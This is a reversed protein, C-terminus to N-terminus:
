KEEVVLEVVVKTIVLEKEGKGFDREVEILWEIRGGMMQFYLQELNRGEIRLWKARSADEFLIEIKGPSFYCELSMFCYLLTEWRKTKHKVTIGMASRHRPFGACNGLYEEIKIEDADADSPSSTDEKVGRGFLNRVVSEAGKDAM